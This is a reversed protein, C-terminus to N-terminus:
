PSIDLHNQATSFTRAKLINRSQANGYIAYGRIQYSIPNNIANHNILKEQPCHPSHQLNWTDFMLMFCGSDNYELMECWIKDKIGEKFFPDILCIIPNFGIQKMEEIESKIISPSSEGKIIPSLASSCDRARLAVKEDKEYLVIKSNQIKHELLLKGALMFSGFYRKGKLPNLRDFTSWQKDYKCVLNRYKSRCNWHTKELDYLGAGAHSEIYAIPGGPYERLVEKILKLLLFHKLYDGANGANKDQLYEGM